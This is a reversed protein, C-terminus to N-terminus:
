VQLLEGNILGWNDWATEVFTVLVDEPEIDLSVLGTMLCGMINRKTQITRGVGFLIEILIFKNSRPRSPVPYYPDSLFAEDGFEIVRQSRDFDPVDAIKVAAHVADMIEKKESDSRGKLLTLTTHPM